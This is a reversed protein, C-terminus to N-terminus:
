PIVTFAAMKRVLGQNNEFPCELFSNLVDRDYDCLDCQKGLVSVVSQAM